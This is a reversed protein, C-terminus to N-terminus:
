SALGTFHVNCVRSCTCGITAPFAILAAFGPGQSLTGACRNDKHFEAIHGAILGGTDTVGYIEILNGDRAAQLNRARIMVGACQECRAFHFAPTVIRKSLETDAVAIINPICRVFHAAIKGRDVEARSACGFGNGSPIIVAASEKIVIGDFAPAAVFM